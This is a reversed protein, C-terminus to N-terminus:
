KTIELIKEALLKGVIEHGFINLHGVGPASNMFGRPLHGEEVLLNFESQPNIIYFGDINKLSSFIKLNETDIFGLDNKDISPAFPLLLVIVKSELYAEKLLSLQEDMRAIPLITTGVAHVPQFQDNFDWKANLVEMIQFYREQTLQYIMFRSTIKAFVGAESHKFEHTLELSGTDTVEFYSNHTKRNFSDGGDFGVFDGISLQIVVIEPQYYQKIFPALYIYDSVGYGSKGLNHLDFNEGEFKLKKEALSVFKDDDSIQFAETHSDGLVVVSTARNDLNFPTTIEGHQLYHTVGYGEKGWVGVSGASPVFEWDKEYVMQPKQMVVVRLIIECLTLSILVWFVSDVMYRIFRSVNETQGIVKIRPIQLITSFIVFGGGLGAISIRALGWSGGSDIGLMEALFAVGVFLLGTLFLAAALVFYWIKIQKQSM